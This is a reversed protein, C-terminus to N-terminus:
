DELRDLFQQLGRACAGNDDGVVMHVADAAVVEADPVLELLDDVVDDTVADSTRGGVLLM